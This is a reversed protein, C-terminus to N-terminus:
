KQIETCYIRDRISWADAAARGQVEFTRNSIVLRDRTRIDTGPAVFVTYQMPSNIQAAVLRERPQLITSVLLGKVTDQIAWGSGSSPKWGGAGDAQLATQRKIVITDAFLRAVARRLTAIAAPSLMFRLTM